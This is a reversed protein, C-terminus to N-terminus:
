RNRLLLEALEQQFICPLIAQGKGLVDLAFVTAEPAHADARRKGCLFFCVFLLFRAGWAGWLLTKLRNDSNEGPAYGGKRPPYLACSLWFAGLGPADMDVIRGMLLVYWPVIRFKPACLARLILNEANKQM